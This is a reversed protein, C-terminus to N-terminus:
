NGEQIVTFSQKSQLRYAVHTPTLFFGSSMKSSNQNWTLPIIDDSDCFILLGSLATSLVSKEELIGEKPISDNHFRAELPQIPM